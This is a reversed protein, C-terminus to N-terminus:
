EVSLTMDDAHKFLTGYEITSTIKRWKKYELVM